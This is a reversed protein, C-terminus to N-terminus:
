NLCMDAFLGLKFVPLMMSLFSMFVNSWDPVLLGTRKPFLRSAMELGQADLGAIVMALNSLGWPRIMLLGTGPEEFVTETEEEAGSLGGHSKVIVSGGKSDITM